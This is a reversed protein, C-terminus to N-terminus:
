CELRRQRASAGASAAPGCGSCGTAPCAQRAAARATRAGRSCWRAAGAGGAGSEAAPALAAPAPRCLPVLPPPLPQLVPTPASLTCSASIRGCEKREPLCPLSSRGWEGLARVAEWNVRPALVRGHPAVPFCARAQTPTVPTGAAAWSFITALCDYCDKGRQATPPSPSLVSLSPYPPYPAPVARETVTPAPLPM